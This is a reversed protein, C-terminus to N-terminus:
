HFFVLSQFLVFFPKRFLQGLGLPRQSFRQISEVFFIKMDDAWHVLRRSAPNKWRSHGRSHAVFGRRWCEFFFKQGKRVAMSQIFLGFDGTLCAVFLLLVNFYIYWCVYKDELFKLRLKRRQPLTKIRSWSFCMYVFYVAKLLPPFHLVLEPISIKGQSAKEQHSWNWIYSLLLLEEIRVGGDGGSGCADWLYATISCQRVYWGQSSVREGKVNWVLDNKDLQEWFIM